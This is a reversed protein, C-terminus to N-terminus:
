LYCFVLECLTCTPKRGIQASLTSTFNFHSNIKSQIAIKVTIEIPGVLMRFFFNLFKYNFM